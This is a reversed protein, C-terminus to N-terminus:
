GLAETAEEKTIEGNKYKDLIDAKLSDWSSEAGEEGGEEEEGEEEGGEEGEEDAIEEDEEEGGEAAAAAGEAGAKAFDFKDEEEKEDIDDIWNQEFLKVHKM